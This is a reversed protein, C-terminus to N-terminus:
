TVTSDEFCTQRWRKVQLKLQQLRLLEDYVIGANAAKAPGYAIGAELFAHVAELTSPMNAGEAVCKCGSALLAKADALNLENQTACPFAAFCPVSWM